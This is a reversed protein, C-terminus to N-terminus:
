KNQEKAFWRNLFAKAGRETKRKDPNCLCWAAIEAITEPIMVRPYAAHLVDALSQRVHYPKGGVLTFTGVIPDVLPPETEGTLMLGESQPQTHNGPHETNPLEPTATNRMEADVDVDVDVDVHALRQKGTNVLNVPRSKDKGTERYQAIYRRMYDRRETEDRMSHYREFNVIRWGWTRTEALRIIRRGEHDPTRSEPDPSELETVAGRVAELELGTEDAIVRHTRDDTGDRAARTLMNVFVLILNPRGRMSGDFLSGFVKAYM